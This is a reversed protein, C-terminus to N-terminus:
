LGLSDFAAAIADRKNLKVGKPPVVDLGNTLSGKISKEGAPNVSRQASPTAYSAPNIREAMDYATELRQQVSLTSPIKGSNLFFAIDDQLETFRPNAAKFPAIVDQEVQQQAQVLKQEQTQTQMQQLSQTLQQVQQQLRSTEALAPNEQHAQAQGLVHQAFQVMDIGQNALIRQVGAVPDSSVLNDLEVYNKLVQPLPVGAQQAMDEYPRVAKRFERDEHYEEKGKQFNDLARYFESRVEEPAEAWKEKARPLFHDPPRNVDREGAPLKPTETPEQAEATINEPQATQPNDIKKPAFKGDPERGKDPKPEKAPEKVPEPKKDEAKVEDRPNDPIKGSTKEIEELSREIASRGKAPEVKAPEVAPADPEPNFSVSQPNSVDEIALSNNEEIM